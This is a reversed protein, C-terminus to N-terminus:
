RREAGVKGQLHIAIYHLDIWDGGKKFDLQRLARLDNVKIEQNQCFERFENLFNQLKDNPKSLHSIAKIIFETSYRLSDKKKNSVKSGFTKLEDKVKKLDQELCNMSLDGKLAQYTVLLSIIRSYVTLKLERIERRSDVRGRRFLGESSLISSRIITEVVLLNNYCNDFNDKCILHLLLQLAQSVAKGCKASCSIKALNEYVEENSSPCKGWTEELFPLINHLLLDEKADKLPGANEDMDQIFKEPSEFFDKNSLYCM